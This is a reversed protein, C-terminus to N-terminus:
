NDMFTKIVFEVSDLAGRGYKQDSIFGSVSKAGQSANSVCCSFFSNKLLDIDNDSDGFAFIRNELGPCIWRTALYKNTVKSQIELYSNTSASIQIEDLLSYLQQIESRNEGEMVVTVKLVKESRYNKLLLANFSVADREISYETSNINSSYWEKETYFWINRFTHIRELFYNVVEDSIPFMHATKSFSSILSGNLSIVHNAQVGNDSFLNLIGRLPRASAFVIEGYKMAKNLAVISEKDFKNQSPKM